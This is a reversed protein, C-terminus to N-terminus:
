KYIPGLFHLSRGLIVCGTLVLLPNWGVARWSWLRARGVTSHQRVWDRRGAEAQTEKRFGSGATIGARRNTAQFWAQSKEAGKGPAPNWPRDKSVPCGSYM